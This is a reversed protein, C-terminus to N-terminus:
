LDLETKNIFSKINHRILVKGQSTLTYKTKTHYNDMDNEQPIM